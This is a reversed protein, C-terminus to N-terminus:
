PSLTLYPASTKDAYLINAHFEGSLIPKGDMVDRLAPEMAFPKKLVGKIAATTEGILTVTKIKIIKM